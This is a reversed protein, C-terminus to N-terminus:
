VCPTQPELGCADVMENTPGFPLVSLPRRRAIVSMRRVHVSCIDNPLIIRFVKGIETPQQELIGPLKGTVKAIARHRLPVNSFSLLGWRQGARDLGSITPRHLTEEIARAAM